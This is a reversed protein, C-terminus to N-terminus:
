QCTSSWVVQVDKSESFPAGRPLCPFPEKGVIENIRFFLALKLKRM